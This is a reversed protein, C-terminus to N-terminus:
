FVLLLFSTTFQIVSKKLSLKIYVDGIDWIDSSPFELIWVIYAVTLWFWSKSLPAWVSSFIDLHYAVIETLPSQNWIRVLSFTYCKGNLYDCPWCPLLPWSQLVIVLSCYFGLYKSTITFRVRVCQYYKSWAAWFSFTCAPTDFIFCKPRREWLPKIPSTINNQRTCYSVNKWPSTFRLSDMSVIELVSLVVSIEHSEILIRCCIANWLSISFNLM